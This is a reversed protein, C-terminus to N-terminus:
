RLRGVTVFNRVYTLTLVCGFARECRWIEMDYGLVFYAGICVFLVTFIPVVLVFCFCCCFICFVVSVYLM